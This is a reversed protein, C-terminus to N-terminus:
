GVATREETLVAGVVDLVVRVVDLVVGVVDLVVGVVDLVVGMGLLAEWEVMGDRLEVM